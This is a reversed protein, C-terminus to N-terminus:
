KTAEYLAKYDIVDGNNKASSSAGDSLRSKRSEEGGSQSCLSSLINMFIFNSGQNFGVLFGFTLLSVCLSQCEQVSKVSVSSM